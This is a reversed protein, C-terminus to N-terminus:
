RFYTGRSSPDRGTWQRTKAEHINVREAM